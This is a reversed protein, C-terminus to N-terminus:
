GDDFCGLRECASVARKKSSRLVKERADDMAEALYAALTNYGEAFGRAYMERQEKTWESRKQKKM